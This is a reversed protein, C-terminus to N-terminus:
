LPASRVWLTGTVFGTCTTAGECPRPDFRCHPSTEARSTPPRGRVPARISVEAHDALTVSCRASVGSKQPWTLGYLVEPEVHSVSAGRDAREPCEPEIAVGRRRVAPVWGSSQMQHCSHQTQGMYARLAEALAHRCPMSHQKGGKAHLRVTWGASRPRLDEVKMKSAANIRVFSYTLTAILALDRLDRLTTDPISRLLKCWEAGELVPTKGTKVVHKPGRVAATPNMPVIQGTVLRDFLKRM